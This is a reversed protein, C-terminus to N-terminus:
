FRTQNALAASLSREPASRLASGGASAQRAGGVHRTVRPHSSVHVPSLLTIQESLRRNSAQKSAQKRFM